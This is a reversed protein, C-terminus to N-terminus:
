RDLLRVRDKREQNVRVLDEYTDRSIEAIDGLLQLTVKANNAACQLPATVPSERFLDRCDDWAARVHDAASTRASEYAMSVVELSEMLAEIGIWEVMTGREVGRRLNRRLKRTLNRFERQVRPGFVPDAVAQLQDDESLERWDQLSLVSEIHPFVLKEELNMHEYTNDIYQRASKVVVNGSVEGERWRVIDKLVERGSAAMRDHDRQLTDVEDAAGGDIEAVRGYILDERPHHYRDPWTVMYDMIEYVVHTDVLQGNEIAKLQDAFLQMVTAIHRHEARLAKMMPQEAVKSRPKKAGAPASKGAKRASGVKTEPRASGAKKRSTKKVPAKKSPAKNSPAKKRGMASKRKTAPKKKAASKTTAAM